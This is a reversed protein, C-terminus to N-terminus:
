LNKLEEQIEPLSLLLQRLQNKNLQDTNHSHYDNRLNTDNNKKGKNVYKSYNLDRNDPKICFYEGMDKAQNLEDSSALTEYLKEGHRKGIIEIKSNSKFIDKVTQAIQMVSAAPAKKIYIEGNNSNEIAFQVLEIASSLPLLFRTMDPDTITISQGSKVQSVFLPIVSGRSYLVNGYRVNAVELGNPSRYSQFVKEMLAKTMGMSNIPFVAKDTSLGIVKKVNSECCADLVNQSGLINTKVAEMPFFECSPVQKLAAAHFVYDVDYFFKKISDFDRIDAIYYDIKNSIFKQRMEDQKCEDRSLIKIKKVQSLKKSALVHKLFAKGFSGTGGTILITKNKYSIPM